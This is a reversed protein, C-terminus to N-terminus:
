TPKGTLDAPESLERWRQAQEQRSSEWSERRWKQDEALMVNRDEEANALRTLVELLRATDRENM